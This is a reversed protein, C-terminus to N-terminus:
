SRSIRDASSVRAIRCSRDPPELTWSSAVAAGERAPVVVQGVTVAAPPGGQVREREVAEPDEEAGLDETVPRERAVREQDAWERSAPAAVAASGLVVSGEPVVVGLQGVTEPEEADEM